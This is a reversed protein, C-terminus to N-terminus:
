VPDLSTTFGALDIRLCQLPHSVSLMTLLDKETDKTNLHLYDNTFAGTFVSTRSGLVKELPLGANELARCNTELLLRQQADLAAVETTSILFFPHTLLPYTKKYLIDVM